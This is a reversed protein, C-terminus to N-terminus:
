GCLPQQVFPLSFYHFKSFSSLLFVIFFLIPLFSPNWLCAKQPFLISFFFKEFQLFYGKQAKQLLIACVCLYFLVFGGLFVFLYCVFLSRERDKREKKKPIEKNKRRALIEKNKKSRKGEKGPIKPTRYPYFIRPQRSFHTREAPFGIDM